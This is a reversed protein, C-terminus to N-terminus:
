RKGRLKQTQKPKSNIQTAKVDGKPDLVKQPESSALQPAKAKNARSLMESQLDAEYKDNFRKALADLWPILISLDGPLVGLSTPALADSKLIKKLAQEVEAAGSRDLNTCAWYERVGAKVYRQAHKALDGAISQLKPGTVVYNDAYVKCEIGMTFQPVFVDIQVPGYPTEILAEPFVEVEGLAAERVYGSIFLPLDQNQKKIAEFAPRLLFLEGIFWPKGCKGCTESSGNFNSLAVEQALCSQCVSARLWPQALDLKVIQDVMLQHDLGVVRHQLETKARIWELVMTGGFTTIDPVSSAFQTFMREFEPNDLNDGILAALVKKRDEEGNAPDESTKFVDSYGDMMKPIFQALFLRFMRAVQAKGRASHLQMVEDTGVPRSAAKALLLMSGNSNALISSNVFLLKAATRWTSAGVAHVLPHVIGEQAAQHSIVKM